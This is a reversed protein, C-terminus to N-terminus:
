EDFMDFNVDFMDMITFFTHPHPEGIADADASAFLQNERTPSFDGEAAICGPDLVEMSKQLSPPFPFLDAMRNQLTRTAALASNIWEPTGLRADGGLGGGEGGGEVERLLFHIKKLALSANGYKASMSELTSRCMAIDRERAIKKEPTLAAYLILPVVAVLCFFSHFSLLHATHERCDIEDYLRATYSAALVLPASTRLPADPGTCAMQLLVVATFYHIHLEATGLHFRRRVGHADHLRLEDPLERQWNCVASVLDAIQENSPAHKSLTLEGIRGILTMIKSFQISLRAGSGGSPFDQETLPPVDCDQSRLAPPRGWCALM